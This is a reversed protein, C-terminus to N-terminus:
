KNPDFLTQSDIKLFQYKTEVDQEGFFASRGSPGTDSAFFEKEKMPFFKRRGPIILSVPRFLFSFHLIESDKPIPFESSSEITKQFELKNNIHIIQHQGLKIFKERGIRYPGLTEAIQFKVGRSLWSVEYYSQNSLQTYDFLLRLRDRNSKKKRVSFTPIINQSLLKRSLRYCKERFALIDLGEPLDGELYLSKDDAFLTVEGCFQYMDQFSKMVPLISLLANWQSVGLDAEPRIFHFETQFSTQKYLRHVLGEFAKEVFSGLSRFSEMSNVLKRAENRIEGLFYHTQGVLPIDRSSGLSSIDQLCDVANQYNKEITASM